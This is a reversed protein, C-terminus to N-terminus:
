VGLRLFIEHAGFTFSSIPIMASPTSTSIHNEQHQPLFSQRMARRRTMSVPVASSRSDENIPFGADVARASASEDIAASCCGGAARQDERPFQQGGIWSRLGCVSVM